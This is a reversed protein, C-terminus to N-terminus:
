YKLPLNKTKQGSGSVAIDDATRMGFTAPKSAGDRRSKRELLGRGWARPGHEM